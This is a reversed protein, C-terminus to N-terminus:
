VGSRGSSRAAIRKFMDLAAHLTQYLRASRPSIRRVIHRSMEDQITAQLDDVLDILDGYSYPERLCTKMRKLYSASAYLGVERLSCLLDDVFNLASHNAHDTVGSRQRGSRAIQTLNEIAGSIRVFSPGYFEVLELLTVVGFSRGEWPPRVLGKALGGPSLGELGCNENM